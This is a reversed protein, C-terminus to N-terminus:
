GSCEREEDGGGEEGGARPRTLRSSSRRRRAALEKQAAGIRGEPDRRGVAFRSGAPRRQYQCAIIAPEVLQEGGIVVERVFVRQEQALPEVPPIQHRAVARDDERVRGDGADRVRVCPSMRVFGREPGVVVSGSVGGRRCRGLDVHEVHETRVHRELISDVDVKGSTLRPM